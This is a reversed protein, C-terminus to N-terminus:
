FPRNARRFAQNIKRIVESLKSKTDKPYLDFDIKAMLETFAQRISGLLETSNYGSQLATELLTITDLDGVKHARQIISQIFKVLDENSNITDM